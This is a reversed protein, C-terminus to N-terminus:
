EGTARRVLQTPGIEEKAALLKSCLCYLCVDTNSREGAVTELQELVGRLVWVAENLAIRANEKQCTACSAFKRSRPSMYVQEFEITLATRRIREKLTM